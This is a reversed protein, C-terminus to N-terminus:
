RGCTDALLRVGSLEEKSDIDNPGEEKACGREDQEVDQAANSGKQQSHENSGVEEDHVDVNALGDGANGAPLLGLEKRIKDEDTRQEDDAGEAAADGVSAIHGLLGASGVLSGYRLVM